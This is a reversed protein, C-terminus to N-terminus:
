VRERCSARGIKTYHTAFSIQKYVVNQVIRASTILGFRGNYYWVSLNLHNVLKFHHNGFRTILQGDMTLFPALVNCVLAIIIYYHTAKVTFSLIRRIQLSTWQTNHTYTNTLSCQLYSRLHFLYIFYLFIFLYLPWEPWTWVGYKVYASDFAFSFFGKNERTLM